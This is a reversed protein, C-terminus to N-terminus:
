PDPALKLLIAHHQLRKDLGKSGLVTSSASESIRARINQAQMTGRYYQFIWDEHSCSFSPWPTPRIENGKASHHVLFSPWPTPRIPQGKHRTPPSVDMDHKRFLKNMFSSVGPLIALEIAVGPTAEVLEYEDTGAVDARCNSITSYNPFADQVHHPPSISAKVPINLGDLKGYHGCTAVKTTAMTKCLDVALEPGLATTTNRVETAVTAADHVEDANDIADVQTSCDTSCTVPVMPICIPTADHAVTPIEQAKTTSYYIGSVPESAETTTELASTPAPPGHVVATHSSRKELDPRWTVVLADVKEILSRTADTYADLMTDIRELYAQMWPDM